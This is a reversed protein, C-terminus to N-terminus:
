KKSAEASQKKLDEAEKRKAIMEEQQKKISEWDVRVKTFKKLLANTVQEEFIANRIGEFKDKSEKYDRISQNSAKYYSELSANVEEDTVNINWQKALERFILTKIIVKEAIENVTNEPYKAFQTKLRANLTALEAEDFTTEFNRVIEEMINNFVNERVIINQLKMNIQEPTENKFLETLRKSHMQVMQPDARLSSIVIEKDTNLPTLQKITSKLEAM